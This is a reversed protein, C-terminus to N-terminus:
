IVNERGVLLPRYILQLLGSVNGFFKDIISNDTITPWLNNNDM